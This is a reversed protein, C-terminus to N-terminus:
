LNHIEIKALSSDVPISFIKCYFYLESEWAKQINHSQRFGHQEGEFLVYAVPIKKELLADFMKEAQNPPVIRDEDGQLLLLPTKLSDVHHLPSLAQYREKEEPYKGVLLDLYHSEFKHTDEALLSLDSVGYLSTGTQFTDFFTLAALTTYGGASGGRIAMRNSDVLGKEALYKAASCADKVCVNGWNKRLRNRYERGYGSSGGYNLDAVAFGRSTWFQISLKLSPYVHATPGGHVFLVLPPKEGKSTFKTNHPPYYFLHATKGYSTPFEIAQPLSLEEKPISLQNPKYVTNARRTNIDLSVIEQGSTASSGIFVLKNQCLSLASISTYDLHLRKHTHDELSILVLDDEGKDILTAAIHLKNDDTYFLYHSNGLIWPPFSFDFDLPCINEHQDNYINWFGTKDSIYYLKNEPSFRPEIASEEDGGAVSHANELLGTGNIDACIITTTDWPMFPHDWFYYAIKKGDPSINPSAYFDHGSAVTEVTKNQVDIKVLANEVSTKQHEEMIAYLWKGNPHMCFNAFRKNKEVVLPEPFSGEQVTYIGQDKYNSFYYTGNHYLGSQGGYEHVTTRVNFEKPTIQHGNKHMCVSRGKEQPRMELWYLEDKDVYVERLVVGQDVLMKSTILSKWTGYPANQVSMSEGELM